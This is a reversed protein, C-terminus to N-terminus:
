IKRIIVISSHFWVFSPIQLQLVPLPYAPTHVTIFTRRTGPHSVIIFTRRTGPHHEAGPPTKLENMAEGEGAAAERGCCPSVPQKYYESHHGPEQSDKASQGCTFCHLCSIAVSITLDVMHNTPLQSSHGVKATAYCRRKQLLVINYVQWSKAAHWCVRFQHGPAWWVLM